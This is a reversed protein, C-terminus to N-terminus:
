IGDMSLNVYLLICPTKCQPLSTEWKSHWNHMLFHGKLTKKTVCKHCVNIFLLSSQNLSSETHIIRKWVLWSSEKTKVTMGRDPIFLNRAVIPVIGIVTCKVRMYGHGIAGVVSMWGSEVRWSEEEMDILLIGQNDDVSFSRSHFSERGCYPCIWGGYMKGEHTLTRHCKGCINLWIRDKM